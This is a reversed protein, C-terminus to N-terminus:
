FEGISVCWSRLEPFTLNKIMLLGNKDYYDNSFCVEPELCSASIKNADLAHSIIKSQAVFSSGSIAKGKAATSSGFFDDSCRQVTRGFHACGATSSYSLCKTTLNTSTLGDMRTHVQDCNQVRM